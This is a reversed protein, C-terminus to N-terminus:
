GHRLDGGRRKVATYTRDNEFILNVLKTILQYGCTRMSVLKAVYEAETMEGFETLRKSGDWPKKGVAALLTKMAKQSASKKEEVTMAFIGAGNKKSQLGVKQCRAKRRVKDLEGLEKKPILRRIAYGVANAGTNKSLYALYKEALTCYTAGQRYEDAIEPHKKALARGEKRSVLM